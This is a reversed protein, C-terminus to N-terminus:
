PKLDMELHIYDGRYTVEALYLVTEDKGQCVRRVEAVPANVHIGLHRAVTVDATGIELTQWAHAIHVRPLDLLLPVVTERRFRQPAMRFVQEDLYISIVCYAEGNRSHVRRMFRYRAAPAGDGPFLRPSAAAEEILTLNPRDDRYVDALAQLSTELLLRKDRVPHATVFTGRGREASVLGERALLEMAQRVTVRAVDFEGMLAELTPLKTGPPWRNRAIRQRFVDALQAYRPMPSDRYLAGESRASSKHM